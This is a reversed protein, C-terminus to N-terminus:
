NWQQGGEIKLDVVKKEAVSMGQYVSVIAIDKIANIVINLAAQEHHCIAKSVDYEMKGPFEKSLYHKMAVSIAQLIFPPVNKILISVDM